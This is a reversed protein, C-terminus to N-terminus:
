LFFDDDPVYNLADLEAFDVRRTLVPPADAGYIGHVLLAPSFQRMFNAVTIHGAKLSDVSVQSTEFFMITRSTLDEDAFYALWYKENLTFTYIKPCDYYYLVDEDKPEADLLHQGLIMLDATM